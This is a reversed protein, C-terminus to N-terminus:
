ASGESKWWDLSDKSLTPCTEKWWCDECIFTDLQHRGKRCMVIAFGESSVAIAGFSTSLISIYLASPCFNVRRSASMIRQGRSSRWHAARFLYFRMNGRLFSLLVAFSLILSTAGDGRLEWGVLLSPPGDPSSTVLINQGFYLTLWGQHWLIGFGEARNSWDIAGNCLFM